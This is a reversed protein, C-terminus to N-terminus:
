VFFYVWARASSNLFYILGTSGSCDSILFYYSLQYNVNSISPTKVSAINIPILLLPFCLVLRKQDSCRASRMFTLMLITFTHRCDFDFHTLEFGLRPLDFDDNYSACTVLRSNICALFVNLM